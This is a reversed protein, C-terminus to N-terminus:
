RQRCARRRTALTLLGLLGFLAAPDAAGCGCGGFGGDGTGADRPTVVIPRGADPRTCLTGCGADEEPTYCEGQYCYQGVPCEPDSGCQPQCAKGVATDACRLGLPCTGPGTCDRLCFLDGSRGPTCSSGTTCNGCGRACQQTCQKLASTDSTARCVQGPGCTADTACLDGIQGVSNQRPVCLGDCTRCAFQSPNACDQDGYCRPVCVGATLDSSVQACAYEPRCDALGVRCSQVCRLGEDLEACVSGPPCPQQSPGCAQTCYGGAWLTQGSPGTEPLRCQGFSNGCQPNSSCPKGVQTVISGPLLCAGDFGSFDTSAQCSLPVDCLANVGLGCGKTCLRLSVDNTVPQQICKLDPTACGGDGFCPSASAGQLPYRNCLTTVDTQSLVRLAEGSEISQYMVVVSPDPNNDGFHGLGLCHGLEHLAVTEFDMRGTPTVTDASWSFHVGNFFVDCTQLVGAYARPLTIAGVFNVNGFVEMDPDGSSLVWVPSVSVADFTDSPDPVVSGTAGLSRLKPYACQVSNWTTIAREMANQTVLYSLGAPTPSRSDMYFSFPADATSVMKYTLYPNGTQALAGTSGLLALVLGLRRM